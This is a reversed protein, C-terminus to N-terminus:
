GIVIDPVDIPRTVTGARGTPVPASRFTDSQASEEPWGPETIVEVTTGADHIAFRATTSPVAEPPPVTTVRAVLLVSATDCYM